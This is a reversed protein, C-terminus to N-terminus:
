LRTTRIVLDAIRSITPNLEKLLLLIADRLRPNARIVIVIGVLLTIGFGTALISLPREFQNWLSWKPAEEIKAIREAPLGDFVVDVIETETYEVTRYGVIASVVKTPVLEEFSYRIYSNISDNTAQVGIKVWVPESKVPPMSKTYEAIGPIRIGAKITKAAADGMNVIDVRVAADPINRTRLLERFEQNDIEQPVTIRDSSVSYYVKAKQGFAGYFSPIAAIATVVLTLIGLITTVLYGSGKYDKQEKGIQEAFKNPSLIDSVRPVDKPKEQHFVRTLEDIGADYNATLDVYRVDKLYEPIPSDDIRVPILRISSAERNKAFAKGIEFRVWDSSLSNRSLLVIVFDSQRIGESIKQTISDGPLIEYEDIWTRVDHRTLERALRRAESADKSSYSIFVSLM